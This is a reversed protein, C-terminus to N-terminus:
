LTGDLAYRYLKVLTMIQRMFIYALSEDWGGVRIDGCYGSCITDLVLKIMVYLKLKRNM